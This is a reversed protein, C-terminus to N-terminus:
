FTKKLKIIFIVSFIILVIILILGIHPLGSKYALYDLKRVLDFLGVGYIPKHKHIIVNNNLGLIKAACIKGAEVASEMSWVSLSSKTHGGTLYLQETLKQKPQSNRNFFTNVWKLNKSKITKTEDDYYWDEFVEIITFDDDTLQYGNNNEAIYALLDISELFQHKIEEKLENLTLSTMSKGYLSGSEYTLIATGSWLSGINAGLNISSDWHLDQPYFTINNPSDTLVFCDKKNVKNQAYNFKKKFGIVFGIQNNVVNLDETLETKIGKNNLLLGYNLKSTFKTLTAPDVALVYKDASIIKDEIKIGKITSNVKTNDFIIDEMAQNLHFKVGISSLYDKWHKFWAESTPQNMVKWGGPYQLGLSIVQMYHGLSATNKDLGLGPGAGFDLLYTETDETLTKSNFVQKIPISYYKERRETCSLEYRLFYYAILPLDRYSVKNILNPYSKSNKLLKFDLTTETLNNYVTKKDNLINNTTTFSDKASSLVGIKYKNLVSKVHGSTNHWEYGLESWVEELDRNAAKKILGGGPHDDIFNSVDYVENKYYCVLKGSDNMSKIDELTYQKNESVFKEQQNVSSNLPIRNLIDYCNYYFPGYGRWSHETPVGSGVKVNSPLHETPVGSGVKVNSPLHETPINSISKANKENNIRVSRAMGGITNGKEYIHIEHGREALEHAVTLGSIGAGIIVIKM